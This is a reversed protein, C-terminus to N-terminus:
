LRAPIIWCMGIKSCGTVTGDVLTRLRMGGIVCSLV